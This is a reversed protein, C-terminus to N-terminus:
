KIALVVKGSVADTVGLGGGLDELTARFSNLTAIMLPRAAALVELSEWEAVLCYRGEGLEIINAHSLGAWEAALNRHADLFPAEMGSKVKFRVVNFATM